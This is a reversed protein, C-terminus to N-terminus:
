ILSMNFEILSIRLQSYINIHHEMTTYTKEMYGIVRSITALKWNNEM